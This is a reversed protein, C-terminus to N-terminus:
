LPDHATRARRTTPMMEHTRVTAILQVPRETRGATESRLRDAEEGSIVAIMRDQGAQHRETAGALGSILVFIPLLIASSVFVVFRPLLQAGTFLQLM